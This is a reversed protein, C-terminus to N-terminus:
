TAILEASALARRVPSFSRRHEPCAGFELLRQCHDKTPYGKHRDFGYQPYRAHLDVMQADREVKALISAASIEAVRADGKIIAHAACPLDDPLHNGDVFVHQPVITLKEIALQMAYLSARLINMEDIQSPSVSAVSWALASRKIQLSLKERKKESLKKSDDLGELLTDPSLIVAAAVVNGVLPGRGAEDVGALRGEVIPLPEKVTVKMAKNEGRSCKGHM